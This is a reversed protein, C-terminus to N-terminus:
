LLSYHLINCNQLTRFNLLICLLGTRKDLDTLSVSFLLSVLKIGMSQVNRILLIKFCLGMFLSWISFTLVWYVIQKKGYINM